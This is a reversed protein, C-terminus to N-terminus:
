FNSSRRELEKRGRKTKTINKTIKRRFVERHYQIYIDLIYVLGVIKHFQWGIDLYRYIKVFYRIYKNIYMYIISVPNQQGM